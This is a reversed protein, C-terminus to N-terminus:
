GVVLEHCFVFHRTFPLHRRSIINKKEHDSNFKKQQDSDLALPSYSSNLFFFALCPNFCYSCFVPRLTCSFNLTDFPRSLFYSEYPSRQLSYSCVSHEVDLISLGRGGGGGGYFVLWPRHLISLMCRTCWISCTCASCCFCNLQNSGCRAFGKGKCHGGRSQISFTAHYRWERMGSAHVIKITLGHTLYPKQFFMM